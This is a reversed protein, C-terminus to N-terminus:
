ELNFEIKLDDALMGADFECEDYGEINIDLSYPATENIFDIVKNLLMKQRETFEM